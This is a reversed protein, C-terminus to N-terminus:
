ASIRGEADNAAKSNITAARTQLKVTVDNLAKGTAATQRSQLFAALLAQAHLDGASAGTASNSISEITTGIRGPINGPPVSLMEGQVVINSVLATNPIFTTPVGFVEKQAIYGSLPALAADSYVRNGSGDLKGALDALLSPAGFLATQAFPAQDFTTAQVGFFVGVLAALGGGLSHGTLTITAGPNVAKIQLYYEVAQLLQASGTGLVLGVNAAIDGTIDKDYTGAYSIVIENPSAINQFSVAEFGDAGTFQPYDPNNPVHAYDLWGEPVPFWNIKDRTSIYARGAMLAYEIATTM